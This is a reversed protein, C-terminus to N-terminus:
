DGGALVAPYVRDPFEDIDEAWTFNANASFFREMREVLNIPIDGIFVGTYKTTRKMRGEVGPTALTNGRINRTLTRGRDVMSPNIVTWINGTNIMVEFLM